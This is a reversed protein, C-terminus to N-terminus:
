TRLKGTLYYCKKNKFLKLQQSNVVSYYIEGDFWEGLLVSVSLGEEEGKM